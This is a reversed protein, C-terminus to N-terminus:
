EEWEYDWIPGCMVEGDEPPRSTLSNLPTWIARKAHVKLVEMLKMAEDMKEPHGDFTDQLVCLLTKYVNHFARAQTHCVTGKEIDSIALNDKMNWVGNPNYPIPDGTYAYGEGDPLRELKNECFIEEFRFFHAYQKTSEDVPSEMHAGEGQEVIEGIALLASEM